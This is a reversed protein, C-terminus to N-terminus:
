SGDDVGAQYLPQEEGDPGIMGFERVINARPALIILYPHDGEWVIQGHKLGLRKSVFHLVRLWFNIWM